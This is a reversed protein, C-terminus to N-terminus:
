SDAPFSLKVQCGCKNEFQKLAIVHGVALDVVHIYDRVGILFFIYKPTISQFTCSSKFFSFFFLLLGQM